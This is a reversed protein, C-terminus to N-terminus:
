LFDEAATMEKRRRRMEVAAAGGDEIQQRWRRGKGGDEIEAAVRRGRNRRGGGDDRKEVRRRWGRKGGPPPPAPAVMTKKQSAGVAMTVKQSTETEKGIRGGVNHDYEHVQKPAHQKPAQKPAPAPKTDLKARNQPLVITEQLISEIEVCRKWNCFCVTRNDLHINTSSASSKEAMTIPVLLPKQCSTFSTALSIHTALFTGRAILFFALFRDCSFPTRRM